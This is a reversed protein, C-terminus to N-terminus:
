NNAKEARRNKENPEFGKICFDNAEKSIVTPEYHCNGYCRNEHCERFRWCKCYVCIEEDM